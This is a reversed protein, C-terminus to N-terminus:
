ILELVKEKEVKDRVAEVMFQNGPKSPDVNKYLSIANIDSDMAVRMAHQEFNEM